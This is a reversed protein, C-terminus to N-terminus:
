FCIFGTKDFSLVMNLNTTKSCLPVTHIYKMLKKKKIFILSIQKYFGKNLVAKLNTKSRVTKLQNKFTSITISSHVTFIM